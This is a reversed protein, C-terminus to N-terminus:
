WFCVNLTHIKANEGQSNAQEFTAQLNSNPLVCRSHTNLLTHVRCATDMRCLNGLFAFRLHAFFVNKAILSLWLFIRLHEATLYDSDIAFCFFSSFQIIKPSKKYM